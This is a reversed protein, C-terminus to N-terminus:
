RDTKLQLSNIVEQVFLDFETRTKKEDASSPTFFTLYIMKKEFHIMYNVAYTEENSKKAHFFYSIKLARYQKSITLVKCDENRVIKSMGIADFYEECKMNSPFINEIVEADSTIKYEIGNEDLPAYFDQVMLTMSNIDDTYVIGKMNKDASKHYSTPLDLHVQLNDFHEAIDDTKSQCQMLFFSVTLICSLWKKM